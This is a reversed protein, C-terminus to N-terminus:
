SLRKGQTSPGGMVGMEFNSLPEELFNVTVRRGHGEAPERPPVVADTSIELMSTRLGCGETEVTDIEEGDVGTDEEL